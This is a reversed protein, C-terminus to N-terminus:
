RYSMWGRGDNGEDLGARYVFEGEPTEKRASLAEFDLRVRVGGDCEVTVVDGDRGLVKRPRQEFVNNPGVSLTLLPEVNVIGGPNRLLAGDVISFGDADCSFFPKAPLDFLGDPM